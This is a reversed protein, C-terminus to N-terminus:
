SKRYETILKAPARELWAKLMLDNVLALDAAALDIRIGVVKKGWWLVECAEPQVALAQQRHEEGVFIRIETDDQPATSMVKGSVRFSTLHHHPAEIVEPLSLAYRRADDLTM